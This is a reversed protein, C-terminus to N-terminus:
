INPLSCNAIKLFWKMISLWHTNGKVCEFLSNDSKKSSKKIITWDVMGIQQLHVNGFEVVHTTISMLVIYLYRYM